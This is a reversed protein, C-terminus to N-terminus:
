QEIGEGQALWRNFTPRSLLGDRLAPMRLLASAPSREAPDNVLCQDVVACLEVSYATEDLRPAPKAVLIALLSLVDLREGLAYRGTTVEFFVMGLAWIAHPHCIEDGMAYEPSQYVNRQVDFVANCGSTGFDTVKVDGLMTYLINEPELFKYLVHVEELHELAMAVQSAICMLVEQPPQGCAKTRQVVRTLSTRDGAEYVAYLKCDGVVFAGYCQVLFPSSVLFSLESLEVYLNSRLPRSDAMVNRVVVNAGIPKVTAITGARQRGAVLGCDPLMPKMEEFDLDTSDFEIACGDDEDHGLRLSGKARLRVARRVLTLNLEDNEAWSGLCDNDALRQGSCEALLEMELWPMACMSAVAMKLQQATWSREAELEHLAGNVEALRVFVVDM